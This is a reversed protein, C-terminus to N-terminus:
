LVASRRKNPFNHIRYLSGGCHPMQPGLLDVISIYKKETQRGKNDLLLPANKAHQTLHFPPFLSFSLLFQILWYRPSLQFYVFSLKRGSRWMVLFQTHRSSFTGAQSGLSGITELNILTEHLRPQISYQSTHRTQNSPKIHHVVPIM